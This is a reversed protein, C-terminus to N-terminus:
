KLLEILHKMFANVPFGMVNYYDGEIGKIMVKALGQIGFGGAKDYPETTNIYDNIIEESLEDFVVYTTSLFKEMKVCKFESNILGIVVYTHALVKNNSYRQFWEKCEEKTKPKELIKNDFEVISDATILIDYKDTKNQEIFHNFKNLCTQEVYEAPSFKDKPLNEPFDSTKVTFQIGLSSLLERRRPSGSALIIHLDKLKALSKSYM